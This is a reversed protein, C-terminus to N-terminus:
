SLRSSVRDLTTELIRYYHPFLDVADGFLPGLSDDDASRQSLRM